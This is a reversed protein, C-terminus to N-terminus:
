HYDVSDYLKLGKDDVSILPSITFSLGEEVCRDSELCTDGFCCKASKMLFLASMVTHFGSV